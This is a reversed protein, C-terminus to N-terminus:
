GSAADVPYVLTISGEGENNVAVAATGSKSTDFTSTARVALSAASENAAVTLLGANSM